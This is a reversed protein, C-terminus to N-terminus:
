QKQNDHGETQRCIQNGLLPCEVGDGACWNDNRPMGQDFVRSEIWNRRMLAHDHNGSSHEIKMQYQIRPSHEPYAALLSAKEDSERENRDHDGQVDESPLCPPGADHSMHSDPEDHSTGQPIEPVPKGDSPDPIEQVHKGIPM